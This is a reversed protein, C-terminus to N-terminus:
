NEDLKVKQRQRHERRRRRRRIGNRTCIYGEKPTYNMLAADPLGLYDEVMNMGEIQAFSQIEYVLKSSPSSMGLVKLLYVHTNAEMVVYDQRTREPTITATYYQNAFYVIVSRLCTDVISIDTVTDEYISTMLSIMRLQTEYSKVRVTALFPNNKDPPMKVEVLEDDKGCEKLLARLEDVTTAGFIRECVEVTDLKEAVPATPARAM